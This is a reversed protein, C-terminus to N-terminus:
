SDGDSSGATPTIPRRERWRRQKECNCIRCRRRGSPEVYTNAEDYPHGQPCHTRQAWTGRRMNEAHTVPELHDPRVCARNRCLHDLELGEPVPGMLTRYLWLHAAGEGNFRGYGAADRAGTWEWCGNVVRVKDLARVLTTERM